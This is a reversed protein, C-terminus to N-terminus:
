TASSSRILLYFFFIFLVQKKSYLNLNDQDSMGMFMYKSWMDETKLFNGWYFMSKQFYQPLMYM